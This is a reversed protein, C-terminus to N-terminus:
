SLQCGEGFRDQSAIRSANKRNRRNPLVQFRVTGELIPQVNLVRRPGGLIMSGNEYLLVTMEGDDIRLGEIPASVFGTQYRSRAFAQPHARRWESLLRAKPFVESLKSLPNPDLLTTAASTTVVIKFTKFEESAELSM